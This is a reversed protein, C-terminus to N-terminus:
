KLIDKLIDVDSKKGNEGLANIISNTLTDPDIALKKIKETTLYQRVALSMVQAQTFGNEACYDKLMNNTEENLQFNKRIWKTEM